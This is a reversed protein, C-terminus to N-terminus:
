GWSLIGPNEYIPPGLMFGLINHDTNDSTSVFPGTTTPVGRTVEVSGGYVSYTGHVM